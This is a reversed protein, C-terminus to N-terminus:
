IMGAIKKGAALSAPEIWRKVTALGGGWDDAPYPRLPRFFPGAYSITDQGLNKGVTFLLLSEITLLGLRAEKALM